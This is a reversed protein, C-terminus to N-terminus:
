PSGIATTLRTLTPRDPASLWTANPGRCRLTTHQGAGSWHLSSPTRTPRGFRDTAWTRMATCFRTAEATSDWVTRLALATDTGRQFTRVHGGDWGEAAAEAATVPLEGQLLLRADLEGFSFEGAPRWGGGLRSSLDPV